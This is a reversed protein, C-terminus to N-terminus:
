SRWCVHRVRGWKKVGSLLPFDFTKRRMIYEPIKLIFMAEKLKERIFNKDVSLFKAEIENKM